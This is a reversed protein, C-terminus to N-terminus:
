CADFCEEHEYPKLRKPNFMDLWDIKQIPIVDYGLLRKGELFCQICAPPVGYEAAICEISEFSQRDELMFHLNDLTRELSQKEYESKRIQTLILPDRCLSWRYRLSTLTKELSALSCRVDRIEQLQQYGTRELISDNFISLATFINTDKETDVVLQRALPNRFSEFDGHAGDKDLFGALDTHNLKIHFVEHLVFFLRLWGVYKRGVGIAYVSPSYRILMGVLPEYLPSITPVNVLKAIECGNDGQSILDKVRNIFPKLETYQELTIM